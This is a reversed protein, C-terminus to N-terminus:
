AGEEGPRELLHLTLPQQVGKPHFQFSRQIAADPPVGAAAADSLVVQGPGAQAQIRQTLNVASGVIGYKARTESGINGVVVTGANVGIGAALGPLGQSTLERNIAAMEAQMDRACQVAAELSPELPGDLPDFFVLVGDGIFDVIIGHNRKIVEIMHSFYLNLANLTAEPALSESLSTFGRIDSMLVAVDRREGGLRSAEPRRMLEHAVEEDVYRGFTNRIFDRERLGDVMTNFSRTLQGIEDDADVPLREGYRGEAIREAARSLRRVSKTIRGVAFRILLLILVISVGGAAAYWFRFRIIPSLVRDGPAFLVLAWPANAMHYHGAVTEAPHGPGLLTGETNDRIGEVVAQELPDGTEGLRDSTSEMAATRALIRGDEDVLCAIDSQWWGLDQMDRILSDFRLTVTLRGVTAGDEDLFRTLLDVTEGDAEPDYAPNTVRAIRARHFRMMRGMGQSTGGMRGMFPGPDGPASREWELQVGTVGEVNELREVIWEQIALGNREDATEGLLEILRIPNELRMDVHHAARQLKLVAAERWQELMVDRAYLFGLFGLVTLLGGVPLLVLLIMRQQLTRISM